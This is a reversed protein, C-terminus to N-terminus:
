VNIGSYFLIIKNDNCLLVIFNVTCYGITSSTYFTYLYVYLIVFKRFSYVLLLMDYNTVLSYNFRIVSFKIENLLTVEVMLRM